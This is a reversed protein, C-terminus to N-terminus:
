SLEEEDEFNYSKEEDEDRLDKYIKTKAKNKSLVLEQDFSSLFSPYNKYRSARKIERIFITVDRDNTSKIYADYMNGGKMLKILRKGIDDPLMGVYQKNQDQTFIKSRKICLILSQGITLSSIIKSPAVNVLSVIKTKGTEELFTHNYKIPQIGNKSKVNKKINMGSLRKINRIAIQNLIDLKLVKKYTEKADKIKGLSVFAYALRNLADIDNPNENLLAKNLSTANEWDGLLMAKIAKDKLLIM